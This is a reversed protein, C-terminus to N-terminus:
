LRLVNPLHKFGCESVFVSLFVNMQVIYQFEIENTYNATTKVGTKGAVAQKMIVKTDVMLDSM